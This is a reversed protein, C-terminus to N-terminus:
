FPNIDREIKLTAIFCLLSGSEAMNWHPKNLDSKEAVKKGRRRFERFREQCIKGM